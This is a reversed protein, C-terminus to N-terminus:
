KQLTTERPQSSILASVKRDVLQTVLQQSAGFVLAWAAVDRWEGAQIEPAIGGVVAYVGALACLAGMQVKLLLSHVPLYFPNYVGGLQLVQRAGALLGGVSGFTGIAIMTAFHSGNFALTPWTLTLAGTKPDQTQTITLLGAGGAVVLVTLFLTVITILILLRNRYSHSRSYRDDWASRYRLVLECANPVAVLDDADCQGVAPDPAHLKLKLIPDHEDLLGTADFQIERLRAAREDRPLLGVARAEASHILRFTSDVQSGTWWTALNGRTRLNEEALKLLNEIHRHTPTPADPLTERIKDIKIRALNRWVGMVQDPDAPAPATRPTAVVATEM